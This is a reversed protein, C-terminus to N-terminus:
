SDSLATKRLGPDERTAKVDGPHLAQDLIEM